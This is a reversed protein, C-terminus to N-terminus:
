PRGDRRLRVPQSETMGPTAYWSVVCWALYIGVGLIAPISEVPGDAAAIAALLLGCSLLSVINDRM